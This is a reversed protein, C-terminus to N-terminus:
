DSSTSTDEKAPRYEITSGRIAGIVLGGVAGLATTTIALLGYGMREDAGSPHSLLAIGGGVALGSLLGLGLGGVASSLHDTRSVTRIREIPLVVRSHADKDLFSCSDKELSVASASYERQDTTTVVVSRDAMRRNFLGVTVTDNRSVSKDPAVYYTSSCGEASLVASLALIALIPTRYAMGASVSM